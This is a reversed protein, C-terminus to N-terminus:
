MTERFDYGLSTLVERCREIDRRVINLGAEGIDDCRLVEELHDHLGKYLRAHRKGIVANDCNSCRTREMDNGICRDDDATCWAHGNSRIPTSSSLARVMQRHDKFVVVAEKGRWAILNKGYGGALPEEPQLWTGVVGAKIDDLEDQIEIYLNMEQSENLAYGLTMDLSWHKFHERLYRLDGFQSRAAYNAFKRRFQHPALSWTLECERAFARLSLRWAGCSMTRVQNKKCPSIALFVANEHRQAEVIEPDFPNAARREAIEARIMAQYPAAWREMMRLALVAAEPVMWETHGADTKISQSQMWWFTITQDVNDTGTPSAETSYCAGSKIFALEHNRCGSVSAVVIYAATRLERLSKRFGGAGTTWGNRRLRRKFPGDLPTADDTRIAGGTGMKDRLDLLANGNQVISWARQFLATFVEDPILPTTEARKGTGAGTRGALHAPSTGSWPHSPMPDNTYQSLESLAEVAGFRHELSSSKLPQNHRATRHRKCIDIYVACIAPTVDALRTVGLRALHRLFPRADSELKLIGRASPRKQGARGRRVYRYIVAKMTARYEEPIKCFDIAQESPMRNTPHGVFQWRDEGYRSLVIWHGDIEQFSIILADRETERMGQTSLQQAQFHMPLAIAHPSKM